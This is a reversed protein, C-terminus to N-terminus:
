KLHKIIKFILEVVENSTEPSELFNKIYDISKNRDKKLIYELIEDEHQEYEDSMVFSLIEQNTKDNISDYFEEFDEYGLLNGVTVGFYDALQKASEPNIQRKGSEWNQISRIPIGTKEFVEKQTKGSNKRLEKLRNM